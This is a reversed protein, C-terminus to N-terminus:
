TARQSIPQPEFAHSENQQVPERYGTGGEILGGVGEWIIPAVGGWLSIAQHACLSIAQHACLSIAESVRTITPRTAPRM